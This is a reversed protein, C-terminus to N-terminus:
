TLLDVLHGFGRVQLILDELLTQYKAKDQSIEFLKKKAEENLQNLLQQRSQLLRLRSKNVHTSQTSRQSSQLVCISIGVSLCLASHLRRVDEEASRSTEAEKPLVGRPQPDGSSRAQGLWSLADIFV